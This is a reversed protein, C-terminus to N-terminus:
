YQKDITPYISDTREAEYVPQTYKKGRIILFFIAALNIASLIVITVRFSLLDGLVGAIFNFVINGLAFLFNNIAQVRVRMNRPLYNQFATVRIIASNSGLGGCIFRAILMLPYPLFLLIGDLLSYITYVFCTFKYRIRRPIEIKYQLFSGLVRAIMEASKLTGLMIVNLLPTTQFYYQIMQGIGVSVGNTIGTYIGINRVGKEKIFYQYGEKLKERYDQFSESFSPRRAPLGSNLDPTTTQDATNNRVEPNEVHDAEFESKAAARPDAKSYSIKSEIFISLFVLVSVGTVINAMSTTKYLWASFPSMIISIFPFIMSGAANGKQELGQPIIDPLWSSFALNYIISICSILLTFFLLLGFNLEYFRLFISLFLYIIFFIMDLSIIIKKKNWGEILPSMFIGFILDPFFSAIMIISSLFASGTLDYTLLLLPFVIAEGAIASLITSIILLTYDKTWLKKPM